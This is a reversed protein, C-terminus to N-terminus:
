TNYMGNRLRGVLSYYFFLFFSFLIIYLHKQAYSGNLQYIALKKETHNYGYQKLVHVVFSVSLNSTM